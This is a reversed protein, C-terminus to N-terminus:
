GPESLRSLANVHSISKADWELVSRAAWYESNSLEREEVAAALGDIHTQYRVDSRALRDLKAESLSEKAHTTAYEGALRALVIHREHELRCAIGEAKAKRVGIERLKEIKEYPDMNFNSALLERADDPTRQRYGQQRLDATRTM